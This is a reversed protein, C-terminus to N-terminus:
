DRLSRGTLQLFVDELTPRRVHLQDYELRELEIATLLKPLLAKPDRTPIEWAAGRADIGSGLRTAFASPDPAAGEFTLEVVSPIGLSAILEAPTGSRLIKGHDLIALRDCLSEAEDMYHTTLITTRGEDKMKRVVEWLSRRGQPDLGSTPEDLFVVDPDNVLALALALRQAQGGSLTVHYADAKDALQVLALLDETKRRKPYYGGFLDLAERPTIKNYLSTAQLQVGIRSRIERADRGWTLGCVSIEGADPDTLGEIMELTTTKGAGNPGLLGFIEGSRVHLDVGDVAVVKPFEKRLGRVVVDRPM